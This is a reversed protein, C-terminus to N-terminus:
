SPRVRPRRRRRRRGRGWPRWEAWRQFGGATRAPSERVRARGARGCVWKGPFLSCCAGQRGAGPPRPHCAVSRRVRPRSTSLSRGPVQEQVPTDSGRGRGPRHSGLPATLSPAEGAVPGRVTSAVVRAPCPRPVGARAAADRRAARLLAPQRWAVPSGRADERGERPPGSAWSRAPLPLRRVALPPTYVVVAWPRRGCPHPSWAAARRGPSPRGEGGAVAGGEEGKKQAGGASERPVLSEGGCVRPDQAM